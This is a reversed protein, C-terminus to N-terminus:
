AAPEELYRRVEATTLTGTGAAAVADLDACHALLQEIRNEAAVADRLMM